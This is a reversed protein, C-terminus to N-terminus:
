EAVWGLTRYHDINDLVYPPLTSALPVRDIVLDRDYLDQGADIRQKIWDVDRPVDKAIDNAHMFSQIKSLVMEAGGMYSFHWGADRLEIPRGSACTRIKNPDKEAGWRYAGIAWGQQVRHNFDYYYFDMELKVAACDLPVDKLSAVVAPHAIEDCDGVIVWDEASVGILGDAIRARHYREREWSNRGAGSLDDVQVYILKDRWRQFRAQHDAFTYPKPQGSHTEAAECVVFHDVVEDLINFRLELMDLENYFM